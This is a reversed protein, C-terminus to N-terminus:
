KRVVSTVPEIVSGAPVSITMGPSLVSISTSSCAGIAMSSPRLKAIRSPPRVTPAPRTTSISSYPNAVRPHRRRLEQAPQGPTRSKEKVCGLGANFQQLKRLCTVDRRAADHSAANLERPLRSGPTNRWFIGIDLVWPSGPKTELLGPEDQCSCCLRFPAVSNPTGGGPGKELSENSSPDARIAAYGGPRRAGHRHEPSAHTDPSNGALLAHLASQPEALAPLLGFPCM